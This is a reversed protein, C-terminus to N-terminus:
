SKLDKNQLSNFYLASVLSLLRKMHQQHTSNMLRLLRMTNMQVPVLQSPYWDVNTNSISILHLLMTSLRQLTPGRNLHTTM